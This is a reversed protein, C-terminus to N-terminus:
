GKTRNTWGPPLVVSDEYDSKIDIPGKGRGASQTIPVM